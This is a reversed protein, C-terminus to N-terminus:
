FVSDGFLTYRSKFASERQLTLHKPHQKIWISYILTSGFSIEKQIVVWIMLIVWPCLSLPQVTWPFWVSTRLLVEELASVAIATASGAVGAWPHHVKPPNQFLENQISPCTHSISWKVDNCKATGGSILKLERTRLQGLQSFQQLTANLHLTSIRIRVWCTWVPFVQLLLM